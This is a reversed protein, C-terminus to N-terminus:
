TFFVQLKKHFIIFYISVHDSKWCDNLKFSNYVHWFNFNNNHEYSSWDLVINRQDGCSVYNFIHWLVFILRYADAYCFFTAPKVIRAIYAINCWSFPFFIRVTRRSDDGRVRKVLSDDYDFRHLLLLSLRHQIGQEGHCFRRPRFLVPVGPYTLFEKHRSRVKLM